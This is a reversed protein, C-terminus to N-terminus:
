TEYTQVCMKLLSRSRNYETESLRMAGSSEQRERCVLGHGAATSTFVALKLCTSYCNKSGTM